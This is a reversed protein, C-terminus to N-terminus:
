AQLNQGLQLHINGFYQTFLQKTANTHLYPMLHTHTTYTYQIEIHRTTYCCTYPPFYYSPFKVLVFTFTEKMHNLINLM